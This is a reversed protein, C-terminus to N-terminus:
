QGRYKSLAGSLDNGISNWDSALAESDSRGLIKKAIKKNSFSNGALSMVSGLGRFFDNNLSGGLIGSSKKMEQMIARERRLFVWLTGWYYEKNWKKVIYGNRIYGDNGWLGVIVGRM